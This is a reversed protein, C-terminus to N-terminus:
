DGVPISDRDDLGYCLWQVSVYIFTHPIFIVYYPFDNIYVTILHM